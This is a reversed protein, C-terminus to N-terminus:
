QLVLLRERLKPTNALRRIFTFNHRTADRAHQQGRAYLKHKKLRADPMATKALSPQQLILPLEWRDHNAYDLKAIVRVPALLDRDKRKQRLIFDEVVLLMIDAKAIGAEILEALEDIQANESGSVQGWKVACVEHELAALGYRSFSSLHKLRMSTGCWGTTGGPDLAFIGLLMNGQPQM